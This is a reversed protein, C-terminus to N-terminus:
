QKLFVKMLGEFLAKLVSETTVSTWSGEAPLATGGDFVNFLGM